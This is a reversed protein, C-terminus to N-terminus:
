KQQWQEESLDITYGEGTLKTYEGCLFCYVGGHQDEDRIDHWIWGNSIDVPQCETGDISEILYLWTWTRKVFVYYVRTSKCKACKVRKAALIERDPERVRLEKAM